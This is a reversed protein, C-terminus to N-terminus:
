SRHLLPRLLFHPFILAGWILWLNGNSCITPGSLIHMGFGSHNWLYRTGPHPNGNYLRCHLLTQASFTGESTFSLMWFCTIPSSGLSLLIPCPPDLSSLSLYINFLCVWSPLDTKPIAGHSCYSCCVLGKFLLIEVVM